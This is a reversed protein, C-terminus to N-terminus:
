YLCVSDDPWDQVILGGHVKIFIGTGPLYVLAHVLDESICNRVRDRTTILDPCMIVMQDEKWSVQAVAELLLPPLTWNPEIQM